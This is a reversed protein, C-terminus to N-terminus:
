GTHAIKKLTRWFSGNRQWETHVRHDVIIRATTNAQGKYLEFSPTILVLEVCEVLCKDISMTLWRNNIPLHFHRQRTTTTSHLNTIRLWPQQHFSLDNFWPGSNLGLSLLSAVKKPSEHEFRSISSFKRIECLRPRPRAAFIKWANAIWSTWFDFWILIM